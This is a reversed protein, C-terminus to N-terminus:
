DSGLVEYIRSHWYFVGPANFSLTLHTGDAFTFDYGIGSDTYMIDTEEGIRMNRFGELQALLADADTVTEPLEEDRFIVLEVPPNEDLNDFIATMAPDNCFDLFLSNPQPTTWPRLTLETDAQVPEVALAAASEAGDFYFSYEFSVAQGAPLPDELFGKVIQQPAHMAEGGEDLYTVNYAIRTLALDCDNELAYRVTIAGPKQSYFGTVTLTALAEGNAGPLTVAADSPTLAYDEEALAGHLKAIGSAMLILGLLLTLIQQLKKM